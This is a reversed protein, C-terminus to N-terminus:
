RFTGNLMATGTANEASSDKMNTRALRSHPLDIGDVHEDGEPSISLGGV